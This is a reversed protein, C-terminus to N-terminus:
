GVDPAAEKQVEEPPGAYLARQLLFHRDTWRRGKERAAGIQDLFMNVKADLDEAHHLAIAEATMPLKPSGYEYEGHHSLIMHSLLQKLEDPFGEIKDAERRMRQEGLILHGLLNGRDTYDFATGWSLEEIKGIDHLIAGAILLDRDLAPFLECVKECLEAVDETHEILGGIYSHHLAKAAPATRFDARFQPDKFLALLLDRLHDNQISKVFEALRRELADPDKQSRPLFDHPNAEEPSLPKVEALRLQLEERYLEAVGSIQVVDGQNFRESIAQANDWVKASVRGTSDGLTIDIFLGGRGGQRLEKRLVLYRGSVQCRPTLDCIKM